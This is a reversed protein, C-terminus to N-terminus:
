KRKKRRTETEPRFQPPIWRFRWRSASEYSLDGSPFRNFRNYDAMALLYRAESIFGSERARNVAAWTMGDPFTEFWEKATTPFQMLKM